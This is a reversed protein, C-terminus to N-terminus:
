GAARDERDADASETAANDRIDTVRLRYFSLGMPPTALSFSWMGTSSSPLRDGAEVGSRAIAVDLFPGTALGAPNWWTASSDNAVAVFAGGMGLARAGVSEFSQAAAPEVGVALLVLFGALFHSVPRNM